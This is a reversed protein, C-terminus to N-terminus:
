FAQELKYGQNQEKMHAFMEDGLDRIGMTAYRHPYSSTLAPLVEVLPTNGDYDRKFDLLTNILTGWKGRTIGISFLFLMMFDTTRALIIGHRVLYATVLSAPIGTDELSGDVGMGPCVVSVRTPDLM